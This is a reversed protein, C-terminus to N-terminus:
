GPVADPLTNIALEIGGDAITIPLVALGEKGEGDVRKGSRVDYAENHWPCLVIPPTFNGLDLPAASGPCNNRVAYFTGSVNAVLVRVGAVDFAQMTGIPVADTSAVRQFVPRRPGRPRRGVAELPIFNAPRAPPAAKAADAGEDGPVLDYLLFLTHIISDQAARDLLDSQGNAQLFAVLQILGTRHLADVAQLLDFAMERVEPFPLEEFARVLTDLHQGAAQFEAELDVQDATM